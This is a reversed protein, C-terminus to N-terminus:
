LHLGQFSSSATQVADGHLNFKLVDILPFRSQPAVPRGEAGFFRDPFHNLLNHIGRLDPPGGNGLNALFDLSDASM